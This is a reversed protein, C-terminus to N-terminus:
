PISPPPALRTLRYNHIDGVGAVAIHVISVWREARHHRRRHLWYSVAVSAAAGGVEIAAFLPKNDVISNSLLVEDRGRERFHLTSTYDLARVGAVGVFLALNTKDWFKHPSSPAGAGLTQVRPEEPKSSDPPKRAPEERPALQACATLPALLLWTLSAAAQCRSPKLM